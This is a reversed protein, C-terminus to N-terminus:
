SICRAGNIAQQAVLIWTTSASSVLRTHVESVTPLQDILVNTDLSIFRTAGNPAPAQAGNSGSAYSFSTSSPSAPVPAGNPEWDM